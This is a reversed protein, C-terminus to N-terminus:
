VLRIHELEMQKVKDILEDIRDSPTDSPIELRSGDRTQLVIKSQRRTNTIQLLGSVLAGLATGSVSVVAVLVTSDIGRTNSRGDRLDLEISAEKLVVQSECLRKLERSPISAASLIINLTQNAM